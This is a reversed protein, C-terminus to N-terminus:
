VGGVNRAHRSGVRAFCGRSRGCGSDQFIIRRTEERPQCSTEAFLRERSTGNGPARVLLPADYEAPEEAQTASRGKRRRQVARGGGVCAEECRRGLYIRVPRCPAARTWRLIVEFGEGDGIFCVAGLSGRGAVKCDEAVLYGM